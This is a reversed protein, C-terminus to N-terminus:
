KGDTKAEIPARYLPGSPSALTPNQFTTGNRVGGVTGKLQSGAPSIMNATVFIMLNKKQTTKGNSQFLKGILPLDGLVPVKDHITQVEERTLGGIVVTAGDYVTVKTAVDRINFVPQFFGSPVTVVTNGAIAVSTGGYEVFGDFEIIKPKLDLDILDGSEAVTPTVEMVVGIEKEAFDQPTGATIAVSASPAASAGSLSVSGGGGNSVQSQIASYSEPYRLLKPLRSPRPRVAPSPTLSPAAM